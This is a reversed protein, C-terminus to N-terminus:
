GERRSLVAVHRQLRQEADHYRSLTAAALTLPWVMAIRRAKSGPVMDDHGRESGHRISVRKRDMTRRQGNEMELPSGDTQKRLGTKKPVGVTLGTTVNMRFRSGYHRM